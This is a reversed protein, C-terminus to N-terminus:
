SIADEIRAVLQSENILGVITDVVVDNKLILITPVASVKMDAAMKPDDDIDVGLFEVDKELKSIVSQWIPALTKCPGCWEAGFKIVKISM